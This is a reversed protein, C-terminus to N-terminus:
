LYMRTPQDATPTRSATGLGVPAAGAAGGGVRGASGGHVVCLGHPM